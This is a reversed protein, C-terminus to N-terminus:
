LLSMLHGKPALAVLFLRKVASFLSAWQWFNYRLGSIINAAALPMLLYISPRRLHDRCPVRVDLSPFKPAFRL